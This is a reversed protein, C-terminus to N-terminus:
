MLPIIYYTYFSDRCPTKYSKRGLSEMQALLLRVLDSHMKSFMTKFQRLELCLEMYMSSLLSGVKPVEAANTSSGGCNGGGSNLSRPLRQPADTFKVFVVILIFFLFLIIIFSYFPVLKNPNLVILQNVNFDMKVTSM